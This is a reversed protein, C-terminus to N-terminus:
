VVIYFVYHCRNRDDFSMLMELVYSDATVRIILGLLTLGHIAVFCLCNLICCINIVNPNKEKEKKILLLCVKTYHLFVKVISYTHM